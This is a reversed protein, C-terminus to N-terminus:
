TISIRRLSSEQFDGAFAARFPECGCLIARHVPISGSCTVIVADTFERDKWMRLAHSEMQEAKRKKKNPSEFWLEGCDAFDSFCVFRLWVVYQVGQRPVSRGARVSINSTAIEPNDNVKVSLLYDGM